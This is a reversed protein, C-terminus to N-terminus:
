PWEKTPHEFKSNEVLTRTGASVKAFETEIHYDFCSIDNCTDPYEPLFKEGAFVFIMLVIIQLIAQGLIHKVMKRSVIYEFRNHPKRYLLAETPPETALALSALTDM